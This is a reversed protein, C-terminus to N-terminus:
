RTALIRKKLDNLADQGIHVEFQSEMKLIM